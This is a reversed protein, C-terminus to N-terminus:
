INRKNEHYLKKIKEKQEKLTHIDKRILAKQRRLYKKKSKTHHIM